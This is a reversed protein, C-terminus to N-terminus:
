HSAVTHPVLKRWHPKLLLSSFEKAPLPKSFYNGQMASCNISYLFKVQERLEVGEAIVNLSMSRAMTVIASAITADDPNRTIDNVFSQDIKLTHIPLKKIHSLSSYGTGFDDLSFQLGFEKLANALPVLGTKDYASVVARKIPVVGYPPSPRDGQSDTMQSEVAAPQDM